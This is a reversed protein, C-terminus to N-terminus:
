EANCQPCHLVEFACAGLSAEKKECETLLLEYTASRAGDSARRFGGRGYEAYKDWTAVTTMM